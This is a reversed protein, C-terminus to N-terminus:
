SIFRGKLTNYNQTIEEFSLEKEYVKIPGVMMESYNISTPFSSAKGIDTRSSPDGDWAVAGGTGSTTGGVDVLNIYCTMDFGITPNRFICVVHVWEEYPIPSLLTRRDNSGAGGGDMVSLNVTGSALSVGVGYYAADTNNLQLLGGSTNGSVVNVWIDFTIPFSPPNVPFGTDVSINQNTGDLNLSFGDFPIGNELTGLYKNKTLDVCTTDGSVYSKRNYPDISMILGDTVIPLKTYYAM